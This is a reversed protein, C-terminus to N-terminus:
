PRVANAQGYTPYAYCLRSFREVVQALLQLFLERDPDVLLM